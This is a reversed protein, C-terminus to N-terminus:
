DQLRTSLPPDTAAGPLCPLLRLQGLQDDATRWLDQARSSSAMLEGAFWSRVEKGGCRVQNGEDCSRTMRWMMWGADRILEPM